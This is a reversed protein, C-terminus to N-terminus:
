LTGAAEAESLTRDLPTMSARARAAAPLDTSATARYPAADAGTRRGRGKIGLWQGAKSTHDARRWQTVVFWALGIVTIAAAIFFNLRPGLIPRSCDIRISEEFPLGPIRSLRLRFVGTWCKGHLGQRFSPLVSDFRDACRLRM